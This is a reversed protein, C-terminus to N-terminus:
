EILSGDEKVNMIWRLAGVPREHAYFPVDVEMLIEGTDRQYVNVAVPRETLPRAHQWLSEFTDRKPRRVGVPTLGVRATELGFADDFLRKIRNGPGDKAPDGTWDKRHLFDEMTVFGNLDAIAITNTAPFRRLMEDAIAALGEDVRRDWGCAYKPPDFATVRSVNFLHSLSAIEERTRLERYTTRGFDPLPVQAVVDGIAGAYRRATGLLEAIPSRSQDGVLEAFVDEAMLRLIASSTTFRQATATLATIHRMTDEVAGADSHAIEALSRVQEQVTAASANVEEAIAANEESVAAVNGLENSAEGLRGVLTSFTRGLDQVQDRSGALVDVMSGLTAQAGQASGAVQASSAALGSVVGTVEGIADNILRLREGTESVQQKSQEALKRVAEAVVAFGRGQEGARAAEISANLSLLNTQEAIDLINASIDNIGAAADRLSDLQSQVRAMAEAFGQVAQLVDRVAGHGAQVNSTGDSLWRILDEARSQAGTAEQSVEQLTSLAAATSSSQESAGRTVQSFAQSLSEMSEEARALLKPRDSSRRTIDSSARMAEDLRGRMDRAAENLSVMSRAISSAINAHDQGRAALGGETGEQAMVAGPAQSGPGAGSDMQKPRRWFM